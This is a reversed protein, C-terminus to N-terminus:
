TLSKDIMSILEPLLQDRNEPSMTVTKATALRSAEEIEAYRSGYKVTAVIIKHSMLVEKLARRFFGSTMEMPGVEDILVLPSEGRAANDLTMAGIKELNQTNVRYNGIRLGEQLTTRALWGEEGSALNRIKFGTRVGDTRAEETLIGSVMLGLRKFHDNIKLM